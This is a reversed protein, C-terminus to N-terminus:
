HSARSREHVAEDVVFDAVRSWLEGFRQGDFGSGSPLWDARPDEVDLAGYHGVVDLHDGPAVAIIEGWVQSLTPVVGDNDQLTPRRNMLAALQDLQEASLIPTESASTRSSLLYLVRYILSLTQAYVDHRHRLVSRLNPQPAYTVVCGYRINEPDASTANLLDCGAPTLQFLLSQDSSISAVFRAIQDQREKTFDALLDAYLQDLLTRDLGLADDARTLIRGIRLVARLPLEGHSLVVTLLLALLRVLPRGMASGFFNALPAGFHPTAVTAVSRIRHYDKFGVDTPLSAGPSIAIRADLGGTSHGILHIPGESQEVIEVLSERVSAARSRISAMPPTRVERIDVELDHQAFRQQLRDSVGVFYSLDGLGSFGFFGPILIVHHRM